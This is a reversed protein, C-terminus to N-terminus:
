KKIKTTFATNRRGIFKRNLKKKKDKIRFNQHGMSKEKSIPSDVDDEDLFKKKNKQM